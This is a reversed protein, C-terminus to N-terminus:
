SGRAQRIGINRGSSSLRNPNDLVKLNGHVAAMEEAISRTEDTSRGDVVLIEFRDGPYDQGALQEITRTIFRAENRVPVIVSICPLLDSPVFAAGLSRAREFRTKSRRLTLGERFLPISRPRLGEMQWRRPTEEAKAPPPAGQDARVEDGYTASTLVAVATNLM